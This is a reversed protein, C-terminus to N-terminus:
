YHESEKRLHDNYTTFLKKNNFTKNQPLNWETASAPRSGVIYVLSAKFEWLDAKRTLSTYGMTGPRQLNNCLVAQQGKGDM